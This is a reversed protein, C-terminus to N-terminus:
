AAGGTARDTGDLYALLAPGSVRLPARITGTGIRRAPLIGAKIMDYVARVRCDLIAAVQDPTLAAVEALETRTPIKWDSTEPM